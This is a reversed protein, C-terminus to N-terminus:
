SRWFVDDAMSLMDNMEYVARVLKEAVEVAKAAESFARIPGEAGHDTHQMSHQLHDLGSGSVDADGGIVDDLGEAVPEPGAVLCPVADLGCEERLEVRELFRESSHAHCYPRHGLELSVVREGGRRLDGTSILTDLFDADPRGVFVQRLADAAVPYDLNVASTLLDAICLSNALLESNLGDQNGVEEGEDAIGRISIWANRPDTRDGRCPKQVSM